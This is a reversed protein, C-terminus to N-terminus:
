GLIGGVCALGRRKVAPGLGRGLTLAQWADADLERGCCGNEPKLVVRTLCCRSSFRQEFHHDATLAESYGTTRKAHCLPFATPSHGNRTPANATSGEVECFQARRHLSWRSRGPDTEVVNWLATVETGSLPSAYRM